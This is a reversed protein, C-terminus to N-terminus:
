RPLLEYMMCGAYTGSDANVTHMERLQTVDVGPAHALDGIANSTPRPYVDAIWRGRADERIWGEQRLRPDRTGLLRVYATTELAM